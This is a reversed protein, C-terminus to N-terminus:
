YFFTFNILAKDDRRNKLSEPKQGAVRQCLEKDNSRKTRKQYFDKGVTWHIFLFFIKEM